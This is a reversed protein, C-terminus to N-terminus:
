TRVEGFFNQAESLRRIWVEVAVDIELLVRAGDTNAQHLYHALDFVEDAQHAGRHSRNVKFRCVFMSLFSDV